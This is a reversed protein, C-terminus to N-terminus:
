QSPVRAVPANPPPTLVVIKYGAPVEFLPPSPENRKISIIALTQKGGRVDTHEELLNLHLEESYWIDDMVTVTKGTGSVLAPVERSIRTGKAQLGNLTTYGLDEARGDEPGSSNGPLPVRQERAIMTMPNMM